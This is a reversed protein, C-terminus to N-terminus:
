TSTRCTDEAPVGSATRARKAKRDLLWGIYGGVAGGLIMLFLAM